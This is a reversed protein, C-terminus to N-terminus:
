CGSLIDYCFGPRPPHISAHMGSDKSPQAQGAEMLLRFRNRLCSGYRCDPSRCSARFVRRHAPAAPGCSGVHARVSGGPDYFCGGHRHASHACAPCPATCFVSIGGRILDYFAVPDCVRLGYQGQRGQAAQPAQDSQPPDYHGKHCGDCHRRCHDQHGEVKFFRDDVPVGFVALLLDLGKDGPAPQSFVGEDHGQFEMVPCDGINRENVLNIYVDDRWRSNPDIDFFLGQIGAHDPLIVLDVEGLLPDNLGDGAPAHLIGCHDVAKIELSRHGAACHLGVVLRPLGQDQVQQPRHVAVADMRVADIDILPVVESGGEALDQYLQALGTIVPLHVLDM